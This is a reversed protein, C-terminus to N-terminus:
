DCITTTTPTFPTVDDSNFNGNKVQSEAVKTLETNSKVEMDNSTVIINGTSSIVAGVKSYDIMEFEGNQNKSLCTSGDPAMKILFLDKAGAGLNSINCALYLSQDPGETLHFGSASNSGGIIKGWQFQGSNNIKLVWINWYPSNFSNSSGSIVYGGDGTQIIARAMDWGSGGYANGWINNGSPDLKKVYYDINGAGFSGTFGAMVYNGDSDCILDNAGDNGTGGFQLTFDITGCGDITFFYVDDNGDPTNESYGAMAYGGSSNQVIAEAQDHATREYYYGWISNGSAPDMKRIWVDYDGTPDRKYNCMMFNGDSSLILDNTGNWGSFGAWFEWILNGNSDIKKRDTDYINGGNSTQGGLIYSGDNLQCFAKCDDAFSYGYAKAWQLSGEETLRMFFMDSNGAGFSRTYGGLALNGDDTIMVHYPDDVDTGGYLKAFLNLDLIQWAKTGYTTHIRVPSALPDTTEVLAAAGTTGDQLTIKVVGHGANIAEQETIVPLDMLGDPGQINVTGIVQSISPLSVATILIIISLNFVIKNM